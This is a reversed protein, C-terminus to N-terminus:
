RGFEGRKWSKVTSEENRAPRREGASEDRGHHAGAAAAFRGQQAQQQAFEHRLVAGDDDRRGVGPSRIQRLIGHEELM